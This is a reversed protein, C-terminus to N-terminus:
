LFHEMDGTQNCTTCNPSSIHGMKFLWAPTSASGTRIHYLLSAEELRFRKTICPLHPPFWLSGFHILFDSKKVQNSKPGKVKPLHRLATCVLANAKEKGAIGIHSPIWQHNVMFGKNDLEKMLALSKRPFKSRLGRYLQQLAAKSDMLLVVNQTPLIKLKCLAGAIEM